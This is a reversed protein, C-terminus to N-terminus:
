RSLASPSGNAWGAAAKADDPLMEPVTTAHRDASACITFWEHPYVGPSVSECSM